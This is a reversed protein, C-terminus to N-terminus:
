YLENLPPRPLLCDKWLKLHLTVLIHSPESDYDAGCTFGSFLSKGSKAMFAMDHDNQEWPSIWWMARRWWETLFGVLWPLIPYYAKGWWFAKCVSKKICFFVYVKSSLIPSFNTLVHHRSTSAHLMYFYILLFCSFAVLFRIGYYLQYFTKDGISTSPFLLSRFPKRTTAFALQFLDDNTDCDNNESLGVIKFTEYSDYSVIHTYYYWMKRPPCQQLFSYCMSMRMTGAMCEWEFNFRRQRLWLCRWGGNENVVDSVKSRLRAMYSLNM